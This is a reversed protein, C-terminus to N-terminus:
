GANAVVVESSKHQERVGFKALTDHHSNNPLHFAFGFTANHAIMGTAAIEKNKDIVPYILMAGRRPKKLAKVLDGAEGDAKGGSIYNAVPRHRPESFVGYRTADVRARHAVSFSHGGIDINGQPSRVLQPVIIAIDDIEPDIIRGELFEILAGVPSQSTSPWQLSRLLEIVYTKPSIAVYADFASGDFELNRKGEGFDCTELFNVFSEFNNKQSSGIKPAVGKELYRGGLNEYELKANFMKNKATPLLLHSSVLPPIQKPTIKEDLKAYRELEKRFDIEDLSMASFAEYLNLTEKGFSEDTGIYLRVLDNYGSRYGFWRGFQMMTDAVSSTRRFYSVTLGEITYGRSLKAGGIVIKWVNQAEFNPEDDKHDGNLIICPGGDAFVRAYCTGIHKRLDEFDSPFPLDPAEKQSVIRVDNEFLDKLRRLGPGSRYGGNAITDNVLEAVEDHVIKFPSHHVLMTHHRFRLEKDEQERYLKLAGALLYSDIAKLLNEEKEDAGEVSRIYPHTQPSFQEDGDDVYSKLFEQPGMYSDPKPLSLVYDKPFLDEADAPNIFVNAYPTATYGVYQARPLLGLLEVIRGNTATRKQRGALTPHLTNISAQDSEDDIILAPIDELKSKIKKLDSIVKKMIPPSKKIVILRAKSPHLNDPHFFPKGLDRREFELADIGRKLEKYDYKPGTLRQWDFYGLESPRAGHRLFKDTDAIGDYDDDVMEFGVVDRDLRFQTQDRLINITGGLVIILRYGADAARAIVGAFNSTKGSQVYGVVLGKTQYAEKRTPDSLRSVIERSAIELAKASKEPFNQRETLQELYEDMYYSHGAEIETTYWQEHEEAIITPDLLPSCPFAANIAECLGEDIGLVRYLVRRRQQSGAITGEMWNQHDLYDWHNVFKRFIRTLRDNAGAAALLPQLQSVPFLGAELGRAMANGALSKELSLPIPKMSAFSADLLDEWDNM